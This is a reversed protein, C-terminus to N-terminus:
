KELWKKYGAIIKDTTQELNNTSTDIILDYNSTDYPNIGYQTEYRHADNEDRSALSRHYIAPDSSVHESTKRHHSVNSLIRGAAVSLDLDLFVKFSQPIWHWAIRSDIVLNDQNQGIQRLKSDVLHDFKSNLEPKRAARNLDSEGHQKAFERFLDGSSFHEFGLRAAVTKATSSKGSGSRGAITIIQKKTKLLEM